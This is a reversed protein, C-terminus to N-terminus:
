SAQLFSLTLLNYPLHLFLSTVEPSTHVFTLTEMIRYVWRQITLTTLSVRDENDYQTASIVVTAPLLFIVESVDGTVYVSRFNPSLLM